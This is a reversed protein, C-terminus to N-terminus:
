DEKLADFGIMEIPVIFECNEKLLFDLIREFENLKDATWNNPHAQLIMYDSFKEKNTFYNEIFYNFDPNGTGKEMNTRNGLYKIGNESEPVVNSFMFVKYATNESVVRNTISDSANFPTGFSRMQIGTLEKVVKDAREFHSKQYAYDTGKFEPRVHDWGHHWIEFLPEGKENKANLYARLTESITSDCRNPIIGFGAKIQKRKLLQFTPLCSCVGEKVFLDDLKLIIKLRPLEKKYNGSNACLETQNQLKENLVASRNVRNKKCNMEFGHGGNELTVFKNPVGFKTLQTEYIEANQIPLLIEDSAHVFYNRPSNLALKNEFSNYDFFTLGTIENLTVNEKNFPIKQNKWLLVSDQLYEQPYTFVNFFVAIFVPLIKARLFNM